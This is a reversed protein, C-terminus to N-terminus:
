PTTLGEVFPDPDFPVLDDLSEGLGVYKVPLGFEGAVSVVTGGKATGDLKVLVLGTVGLYDHFTRAQIVANQGTTADLVLLIEHPAGEVKKAIIKKMKSLEDMLDRQTHLRGSTDCILVDAQRARAADIADFVVAAPSTGPEQRVVDVGVREGWIVLQEIAGARFTDAAALVVKKEAGDLRHALKAITTTKGVGNVGVVMYVTLREPPPATVLDGGSGTETLIERIGDRLPELPSEASGGNKRVREVLRQTLDFGFDAEILIEELDSLEEETYSNKLGALRAIGRVREWLVGM